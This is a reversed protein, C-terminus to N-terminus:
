SSTEGSPDDAQFSIERSQDDANHISMEEQSTSTEGTMNASHSINSSHSPQGGLQSQEMMKCIEAYQSPTLTTPGKIKQFQALQQQIPVGGSPQYQNYGSNFNMMMQSICIRIRSNLLQMILQIHVKDVEEVMNQGSGTILSTFNTKVKISGEM